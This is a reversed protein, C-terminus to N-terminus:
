SLQTIEFGPTTPPLITQNARKFGIFLFGIILPLFIGYRYAVSIEDIDDSMDAQLIRYANFEMIFLIIVLWLEVMLSIRMQRDQSASPDQCGFYARMFSNVQHTAHCANAIWLPLFIQTYSIELHDGTTSDLDVGYEIKIFLLVSFVLFGTLQLIVDFTKLHCMHIM